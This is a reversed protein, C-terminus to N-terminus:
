NHLSTRAEVEKWTYRKHASYVTAKAIGIISAIEYCDKGGAILAHILQVKEVTLM